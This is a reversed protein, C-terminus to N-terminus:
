PLHSLNRPKTNTKKTVKCASLIFRYSIFRKKIHLLNLDQARMHTKAMTKAINGAGLIGIKM